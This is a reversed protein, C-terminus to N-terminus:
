LFPDSVGNVDYESDYNSVLVKLQKSLTNIFKNM